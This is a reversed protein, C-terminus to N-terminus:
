GTAKSVHEDDLPAQVAPLITSALLGAGSASIIQFGVWMGASSDKDLLSFLGFSTAIPLWALIHLLKYRGTKSILVGGLIAFPMVAAFTPLCAIGTALADQQRVRNLHNKM